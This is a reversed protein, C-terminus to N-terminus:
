GGKSIIFCGDQFVRRDRKTIRCASEINAATQGVKEVDIGNLIIDSGEVKVNVGDLIKARRPTKEGLFNKIVVFKNETSVSIPFHSSCIKLKYEFGNSVGKIMNKIHAKFTNIMRKERKSANKSILQIKNEQKKIEVNSFSIKKELKGLSGEVKISNNVIELNINDLLQIEEIIDAM